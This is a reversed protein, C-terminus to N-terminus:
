LLSYNLVYNNYIMLMTYIKTKLKDVKQFQKRENLQIIVEFFLIVIKFRVNMYILHLIYTM